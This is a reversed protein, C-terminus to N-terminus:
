SAGLLHVAGKLKNLAYKCLLQSVKPVQRSKTM